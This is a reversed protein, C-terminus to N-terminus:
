EKGGYSILLQRVDDSRTLRLPTEGDHDRPNVEAHYQLLDKVIELNGAMAASHLPTMGSASKCNPFAGHELLFKVVGTQSKMAALHLPTM